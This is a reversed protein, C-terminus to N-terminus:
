ESADSKNHNNDTEAIIRQQDPAPTLLRRYAAMLSAQPSSSFTYLRRRAIVTITQEVWGDFVNDKVYIVAGCGCGHGGGGGDPEDRGGRRAEAVFDSEDRELAAVRDHRRRALGRPDLVEGVRARVGQGEVHRRRRFVDLGHRLRHKRLEAADVVQDVGRAEDEGARHLLRRRLLHAGAEVGVDEARHVRHLGKERPHARLGDARPVPAPRHHRKAADAAPAAARPERGVGHGLRAHRRQGLRQALLQRRELNGRRDHLRPVEARPKEVRPGLHVRLRQRRIVLRRRRAPHARRQLHRIPPLQPIHLLPTRNDHIHQRPTTNSLPPLHRHPNQQPTIAISENPGLTTIRDLNQILPLLHRHASIM